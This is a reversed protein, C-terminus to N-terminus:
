ELLRELALRATESRQAEAALARDLAELWRDLELEQRRIVV